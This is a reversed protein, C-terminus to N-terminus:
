GVEGVQHRDKQPHTGDHAKHRLHRLQAHRDDQDVDDVAEEAEKLFETGLLRRFGKFLEQGGIGAHDSVALFGAYQSFLQHRAVYEEQGLAVQDGGVAAEHVVVVKLDVLGRQGTFRVRHM